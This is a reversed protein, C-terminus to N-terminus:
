ARLINITDETLQDLVSILRSNAQYARQFEMLIVAEEDLSVGSMQQRLDKAQAVASQQIQERDQAASLESGIRAAIAAYSQAFSPLTSGDEATRPSSLDSLALPIGNSVPPNGPQIAALGGATLEVNLGLTQAAATANDKDYTFLAAGPSGDELEGSELLDNISDAFQSALENLDGAQQGDGIVSPVVRNRIALLAGLAGNTIKGTIDPGDAQGAGILRIRADGPAEANVPPPNEPRYLDYKLEFRRDGLVLPIQGDIM